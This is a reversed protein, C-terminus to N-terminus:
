LLFVSMVMTNDEVQIPTPTGLHLNVDAVKVEPLFGLEVLFCHKKEREERRRTRDAERFLFLFMGMRVSTVNSYPILFAQSGDLSYVQVRRANGAM